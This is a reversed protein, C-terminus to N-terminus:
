DEFKWFKKYDEFRLIKKYNNYLITLHRVTSHEALIFECVYYKKDNLVVKKGDRVNNEIERIIAYDELDQKIQQLENPYITHYACHRKEVFELTETVWDLSKM